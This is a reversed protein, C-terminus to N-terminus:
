SSFESNMFSRFWFWRSSCQYMLKCRQKNERKDFYALHSVRVAFIFLQFEVYVIKMAIMRRVLLAAAFIHVNIRREHVLLRPSHFTEVSNGFVRDRHWISFRIFYLFFIICTEFVACKRLALRTANKSQEFHKKKKEYFHFSCRFNAPAFPFQETNALDFVPHIVPFKRTRWVVLFSCFRLERVDDATVTAPESNSALVVEVRLECQIQIEIIASICNGEIRIMSENVNFQSCM